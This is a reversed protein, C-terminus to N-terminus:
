KINYGEVLAVGTAGGKGAVIATYSGAPLALFLASETEKNPNLGASAIEPQGPDKWDDNAGLPMGNQDYVTLVPDLLPNAIGFESLSPGIARFVMDAYEGESGGVIFGGIMVNDGTEVFGRTSINALKANAAQNLDYAEVLAIGAASNKGRVIATFADNPRMSVTLAPELENSPALGSSQIDATSLNDKRWDDNQAFLGGSYYVELVPDPLADPVGAEALSPGIARLLVRKSESGTAIMGAILVNEGARVRVRTSINLPQPPSAEIEVAGIDSGDGGAPVVILPHYRVPRLSGRQDRTVLNGNADTGLNKGRDIAPSLTSPLHTRTPGGYTFLFQSLHPDTNVQDGPGTLFGGGDDNSLNYGLSTVTGPAFNTITGGQSLGSYRNLINNGLAVSGGRNAITSQKNGILTNNALRVSATGGSGASNYIAGGEDANNESFTCNTIKVLASGGSSARSAIAGGGFPTAANSGFTSNTVTLNAVGGAAENYIAGGWAAQNAFFFCEDVFLTSRDNYIGGGLDNAHGHSYPNRGDRITLGSISVTHGSNIQFIRYNTGSIAQDRRVELLNAGPGIINVDADVILQGSSLFIGGRIEDAFVITDGSVADALAQRLSGPGSDSSSTVTHIAPSLSSAANLLSAASSFAVLVAIAVISRCDM